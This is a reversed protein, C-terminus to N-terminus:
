ELLESVTGSCFSMQVSFERLMQCLAQLAVCEQRKQLSFLWGVGVGCFAVLILGLFKM